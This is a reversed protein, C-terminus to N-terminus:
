QFRRHLSTRGGVGGKELFWLFFGKNRCPNKRYAYIYINIYQCKRNRPVHMHLTDRWTCPTTEKTAHCMHLHTTQLLFASYCFLVMDLSSMLRKGHLPVHFMCPTNLHCSGWAHAFAHMWAFFISFRKCAHFNWKDLSMTASAGPAIGFGHNSFPLIEMRTSTYSVHCAWRHMIDMPLGMPLVM